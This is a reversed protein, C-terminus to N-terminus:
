IIFDRTYPDPESEKWIEDFLRTLQKAQVSDKFNAMAKLSDPYPRHIVGLHDAIMFTDTLGHYKESPKRFHFYSRLRKGLELICHGHHAVQQPEHLLIRIQSHRSRLALEEFAEFCEPNDYVAPDFDRSLIDLHRDTQRIMASTVQQIEEGICILVEDTEGLIYNTLNDMMIVKIVVIFGM